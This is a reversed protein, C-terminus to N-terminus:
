SALAAPGDDASVQARSRLYPIVEEGLYTLTRVVKWHPMDGLHVQFIVRTTRADEAWKEVAHAVTMPSGAIIRHTKRVGEWDFKGHSAPLVQGNRKRFQELTLYGPVDTFRGARLLVDFFLRAHPEMEAVAQEDTEAIHVQVTMPTQDPRIEHGYEAALERLRQQAALQTAIPSFTSSYGFGYKAALEITEPSGSGVFYIKPHPKQFPRPWVNLYRYNYFRGTHRHPSGPSWAKLMVEVAEAQRERATVPNIPNLWYEMPTGLPVAIELRGGSMVDLMAYTEALRHPYEIAPPTGMVCIKARSTQPILAAAIISPVPMMSYATGHHENVCLGDFGLKEALVLESIYRTYLKHGVEPDFLDNPLDVWLSDRDKVDEPLNSFPMFHWAYFETGSLIGM